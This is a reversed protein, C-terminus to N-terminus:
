FASPRVNFYGEVAGQFAGEGAFRYRWLGVATADVDVHYEGVGDQEVPMEELGSPPKVQFTVTDPDVREGTVPDTFVASCRVLDGVDYAM